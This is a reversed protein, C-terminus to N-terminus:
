NEPDLVFMTFYALVKELETITVAYSRDKNTRDNPKNKRLTLLANTIAQECIESPTPPVLTWDKSENPNVHAFGFKDSVLTENEVKIVGDM